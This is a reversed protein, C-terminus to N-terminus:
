EASSSDDSAAAQGAAGASAEAGPQASGAAQTAKAFDAATMGLALSGDAGLGIYSKKLAAASGNTLTVTVDDGEVKAITGIVQGDSSKLPAEAVLAKDKSATNEAQAGSVAAELQSKSMGITLGKERVAFASKPLGARSIGTYVTVVDGAVAEITGVEEGDPGFVKAGAIPNPASASPASQALAMAPALSITALAAAIMLKKM